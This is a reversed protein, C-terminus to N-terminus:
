KRDDNIPQTMLALCLKHPPYDFLYPPELLWILGVDESVSVSTGSGAQQFLSRQHESHNPQASEIDPFSFYLLPAQKIIEKLVM